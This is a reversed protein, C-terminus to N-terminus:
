KENMREILSAIGIQEVMHITAKPVLVKWDDSNARILKRIESGTTLREAMTRTWMVEIDAIGITRLVDFKKNGWEDYITVFYKASLPVYYKIYNPLNIPFPVIEFENRPVGEDILANRLMTYREYYTFPNSAIEARTPNTADFASLGPDPNTIGIWLFNCKSKGALLYEMHGLHLGQFRGHIVGVPPLTDKM